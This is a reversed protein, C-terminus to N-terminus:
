SDGDLIKAWHGRSVADAMSVDGSTGEEPAPAGTEGMEALSESCELREAHHRELFQKKAPSPTLGAKTDEESDMAVVQGSDDQPLLCLKKFATAAAEGM